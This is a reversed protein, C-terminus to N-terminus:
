TGEVKLHVGLCWQLKEQPQKRNIKIYKEKSM